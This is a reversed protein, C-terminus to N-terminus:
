DNEHIRKETSLRLPLGASSFSFCYDTVLSPLRNGTRIPPINVLFNQQKKEAFVERITILQFLTATDIKKGNIKFDILHKDKYRLSVNASIGRWKGTFHEELYKLLVDGRLERREWRIPKSLLRYIHQRTINGRPLYRGGVGEQVLVLDVRGGLHQDAAFFLADAIFNSIVPTDPRQWYSRSSFAITQGLYQDWTTDTVSLKRSLTSGTDTSPNLSYITFQASPIRAPLCACCQVAWYGLLICRFGM